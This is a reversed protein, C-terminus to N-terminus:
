LSSSLEKRACSVCVCLCARARVCARVRVCVKNLCRFLSICARVCTPPCTTQRWFRAFLFRTYRLDRTSIQPGSEGLWSRLRGGRDGYPARVHELRVRVCVGHAARM